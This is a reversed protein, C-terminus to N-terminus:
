TLYTALNTRCCCCCSGLFKLETDSVSGGCDHSNDGGHNRDGQGEGGRPDLGRGVEETDTEEGNGEEYEEIGGDGEDDGIAYSLFFFDSISDASEAESIFQNCQHGTWNPADQTVTYSYPGNSDTSIQNNTQAQDQKHLRTIHIRM